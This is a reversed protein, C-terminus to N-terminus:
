GDSRTGRRLVSGSAIVPTPGDDRGVITVDDEVITGVDLLVNRLFVRSGVSVEDMLVCNELRSGVAISVRAGVATISNVEANHAVKAGSMIAIGPISTNVKGGLIAQTAAMLQEPRGVDMWFGGPALGYVQANEALLRPFVDREVSSPANPSIRSIFQSSLVYFGANIM